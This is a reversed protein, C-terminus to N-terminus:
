SSVIPSLFPRTHELDELFSKTEAAPPILDQTFADEQYLWIVIRTVGRKTKQLDGCEVLALSIIDFENSAVLVYPEFGVDDVDRRQKGIRPFSNM